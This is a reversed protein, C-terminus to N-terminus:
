LIGKPCLVQEQYILDMGKLTKSIFTVIQLGNEM